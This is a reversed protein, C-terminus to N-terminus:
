PLSDFIRQATTEILDRGELKIQPLGQAGNRVGGLAGAMALTARWRGRLPRPM